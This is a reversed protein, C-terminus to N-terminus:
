AEGGKQPVDSILKILDDPTDGAKLYYNGDKTVTWESEGSVCQFPYPGSTTESEIEAVGGGRTRWVQGVRLEPKQPPVPATQQPAADTAAQLLTRMDTFCRMAEPSGTMAVQAEIEDARKRWWIAPAAQQPAHNACDLKECVGDEAPECQQPAKPAAALMARYHRRINGELPSNPLADFAAEVMERTPEVPVLAWGAEARLPQVGGAGVAELEALLRANETRLQELKATVAALELGTRGWSAGYNAAAEIEETPVDVLLNWCAVLRRANERTERNRQKEGTGCSAVFMEYEDATYITTKSGPLLTLRGPTHQESM